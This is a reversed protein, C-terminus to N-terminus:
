VGGSKSYGRLAEKGRSIGAMQKRLSEVHKEMLDQVHMEQELVKGAVDRIVSLSAKLDTAGDGLLEGLKSWFEPGDRGEQLGMSSSISSWQEHIKEQRSIVDQKEQLVDLLCKMDEAIVCEEEKEVLLALENFLALESSVLSSLIEELDARSM